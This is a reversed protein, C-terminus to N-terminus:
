QKKFPNYCGIVVLEDVNPDPKNGKTRTEIDLVIPKM